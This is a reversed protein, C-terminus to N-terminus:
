FQVYIFQTGQQHLVIALIIAAYYCAWRVPRPLNAFRPIRELPKWEVSRLLVAFEVAGFVMLGAIASASRKSGLGLGLALLSALPHTVGDFLHRMTYISGTLTGDRFFILAIAVLHFVFVPGTLTTIKGAALYKAYLRRRYNATLADVILYGAHILGFCLFGANLGHWLGILVMNLTISLILGFAGLDRTAMRLPTFVYDTLWRTLTMHWRRWYQSISPAFFPLAFNEPSKVGFLNAAGVAIDTLASFDAYLQIPYVYYLVWLQYHYGHQDGAIMAVIAGLPDAVAMKKVLGLLIRRLGTTMLSPIEATDEPLAFEDARQIPGAPLQPFFSVFALLQTLDSIPAYKDWYVDILYSILKFTYYSAGFGALFHEMAGPSQTGNLAPMLKLFVLYALQATIAAWLIVRAGFSERHKAIHRAVVYAVLTFCVMVGASVVSFLSYFALSIVALCASRYRSPCTQFLLAAGCIFALYIPSLLDM